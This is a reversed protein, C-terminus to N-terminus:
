SDDHFTGDVIDANARMLEKSVVSGVRFGIELGLGQLENLTIKTGGDSDLVRAQTFDDLAANVIPVCSRIIRFIPAKVAKRAPVSRGM